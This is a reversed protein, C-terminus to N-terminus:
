FKVEFVIDEEKIKFEIEGNFLKPAVYEITMGKAPNKNESLVNM